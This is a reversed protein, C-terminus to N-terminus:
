CYWEYEKRQPADGVKKNPQLAECLLEGELCEEMM